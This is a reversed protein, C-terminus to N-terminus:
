YDVRVQSRMRGLGIKFANGLRQRQGRTQEGPRISGRRPGPQRGRRRSGNLVLKLTEQGREQVEPQLTKEQREQEQPWLDQTSREARGTQWQGGRKV